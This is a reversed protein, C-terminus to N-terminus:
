DRYVFTPPRNAEPDGPQFRPPESPSEVVLFPTGFPVFSPGSVSTAILDRQGIADNHFVLMQVRFSGTGDVVVTPTKPTLGRSWTLALQANPRFGTGTVIVVIGPRGIPPEIKVQANGPPGSPPPTLTGLGQLGATLPPRPGNHDVALTARRDDPASPTFQITVACSEGRRLTAGNCADLAISFDAAAPGSRTAEGVRLSGWGNNTVIAAIPPGEAGGLRPGFDVPDPAISPAPPLDRLFIDALQNGDGRVLNPSNSAFAVLRGGLAITPQVSLLGGPGGGRAESIRITEGSVLDHAYVEASAPAAVAGLTSAVLNPVVSAFAVIRGDGSVAAQGTLGPAPSGNAATSGLFTRGALRDRAYVNRTAPSVGAVLNTAESEFAVVSGNASVAPAFSHGNANAGGPAVSILETRDEAVVRAFVDTFNPAGGALNGADSEFAVIAGNQSVAPAESSGNGGGDGSDSVLDTTGSATDRLYVEYSPVGASSTSENTQYAVFRGDGSISPASSDCQIDEGSTLSVIETQNTARRWLMVRPAYCGVTTDFPSPPRYVFAVASGDASIMPDSAIADEPIQGGAVVPLRVTTGERRDRLFIDQTNNSDNLVLSSATSAFV